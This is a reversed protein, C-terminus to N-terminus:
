LCLYLDKNMKLTEEILEPVGPCRAAACNSMAACHVPPSRVGERQVASMVRKSQMELRALSDYCALLSDCWRAPREFGASGAFQFNRNSVGFSVLCGIYSYQMICSSVSCRGPAM